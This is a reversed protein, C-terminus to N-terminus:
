VEFNFRSAPAIRVQIVEKAQDGVKPERGDVRLVDLYTVVHREGNWQVFFPSSLRKGAIQEHIEPVVDHYHPQGHQDAELTFIEEQIGFNDEIEALSGWWFACDHEYHEPDTTRGVKEKALRQILSWPVRWESKVIVEAIKAAIPRAYDKTLFHLMEPYGGAKVIEERLVDLLNIAM